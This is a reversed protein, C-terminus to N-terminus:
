ESASGLIADVRAQYAGAIAAFVPGAEAATIAVFPINDRDGVMKTIGTSQAGMVLIASQLISVTQTQEDTLPM